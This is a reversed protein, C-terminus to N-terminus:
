QFLPLLVMLEIAEYWAALILVSVALPLVGWYGQWAARFESFRSRVVRWLFIGSASVILIYAQLEIIITPIHLWFLAQPMGVPSLAFGYVMFNLSSVLYAPLALFLGSTFFMVVGAIFNNLSIGFAASGVGGALLTQVENRVLIQGLSERLAAVSEPFAAASASFMLFIGYLLTNTGIYIWWGSRITGWSALLVDRWRTKAFSAWALLATFAVFLWNGLPTKV